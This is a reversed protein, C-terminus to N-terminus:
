VATQYLGRTPEACGRSPPAHAATHAGVGTLADEGAKIPRVWVLGVLEAAHHRAPARARGLALSRDERLTQPM